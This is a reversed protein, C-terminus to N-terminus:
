KRMERCVERGKQIMDVMTQTGTLANEWWKKSADPLGAQTVAVSVYSVHAKLSLAQYGITPLSGDDAFDCPQARIVQKRYTEFVQEAGQRLALELPEDPRRRSEGLAVAAGVAIVALAISRM